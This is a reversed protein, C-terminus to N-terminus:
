AGATRTGNGRDRGRKLRLLAPPKAVVLMKERSVVKPRRDPRRELERQRRCQDVDAERQGDGVLHADLGAILAPHRRDEDNRDREAGHEDCFAHQGIEARLSPQRLEQLEEMQVFPRDTKRVVVPAHQDRQHDRTKGERKQQYQGGDGADIRHKRAAEVSPAPGFACGACKNATARQVPSAEGQTRAPTGHETPRTSPEGAGSAIIGDRCVFRREATRSNARRPSRMIM